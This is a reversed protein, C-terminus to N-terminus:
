TKDFTIHTLKLNSSKEYELLSPFRELKLDLIDDFEQKIIKKVEDDM